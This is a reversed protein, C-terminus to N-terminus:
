RIITKLKMIKSKFKDSKIKNKFYNLSKEDLGVTDKEGKWIKYDIINIRNTPPSLIAGSFTTLNEISTFTLWIEGDWGDPAFKEANLKVRKYLGLNEESSLKVVKDIEKKGFFPFIKEGSIIKKGSLGPDFVVRKTFGKKTHYDLVLGAFTDKTKRKDDTILYGIEIEKEKIRLSIYAKDYTKLFFKTVPSYKKIDNWFSQCSLDGPLVFFYDVFIEPINKANKTPGVYVFQDPQFEFTGIRYTEWTMNKVDKALPRMDKAVYKREKGNYVGIRFATGEDRKKRVKVVGYLTYLFGPIIKEPQWHWSISFYPPANGDIRICYTNRATEDKVVKQRGANIEDSDAIYIAEKLLKEVEGPKVKILKKQHSFPKIRANGVEKLSIDDFWVTGKRYLRLQIEIEETNKETDFTGEFFDWKGKSKLPFSYADVIERKKNKCYIGIGSFNHKTLYWLSIKYKKLPKAPLNTIWSSYVKDNLKEIKISYNGSHFISNDLKGKAKSGNKGGSNVFRWYYPIKKNEKLIEFSGNKILNEPIAFIINQFVLFLFFLVFKKRINM